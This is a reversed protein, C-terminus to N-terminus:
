NNKKGIKALSIGLTPAFILAYILSWALVSFVLIVPLYMMFNGSVGPWFLMPLLSGINHGYIRCQSVWVHISQLYADKVSIGQVIKTNAFEVVVIAGDILM